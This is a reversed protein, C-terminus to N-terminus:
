FLGLKALIIALCIVALAAGGLITLLSQKWLHSEVEKGTRSSILFTPENTGKCIVNRDHEDRPQPNEACTGTIDYTHGPLLCYERLRYHGSAATSNVRMSIGSPSSNQYALAAQRARESDPDSQPGLSGAAMAVMSLVQPNSRSEAVITAPDLQRKASPILRGYAQAVNVLASDFEPTAQPHKFVELAMRRLEGNPDQRALMANMMQLQFSKGGAGSPDTLMSLFSKRQDDHTPDIAHTVLGIGKGVMRGVHRMRAQEIYQLIEADAAAGPLAGPRLANLGTTFSSSRVERVPNSPLDLEAGAADILVNGSEDQLDFKVCQLDDAVRKWEGGHESDHHWEDVEVKFLYCPTRTVPSTLTEEARAEGRVQVLGMPASRIRITPTDAVLRYKRFERFGKLFLFIGAGFGFISGAFLRGDDHAM